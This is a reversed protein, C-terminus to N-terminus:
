PSYEFELHILAIHYMELVLLCENPYELPSSTAKNPGDPEPFVVNNRMIAPNSSASPPETENSPSSRVSM